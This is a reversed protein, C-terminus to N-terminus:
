DDDLGLREAPTIEDPTETGDAELTLISNDPFCLRQSGSPRKAWAEIMVTGRTPSLWLSFGGRATERNAPGAKFEEALTPTM